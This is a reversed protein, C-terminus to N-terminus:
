ALKAPRWFQDRRETSSTVGNRLEECWLWFWYINEYDENGHEHFPRLKQRIAALISLDRRLYRRTVETPAEFLDTQADKHLGYLIHINMVKSFKSGTVDIFTSPITAASPLSEVIDLTDDVHYRFM